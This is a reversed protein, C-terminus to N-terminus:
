AESEKKIQELMTLLEDVHEVKILTLGREANGVVMLSDGPVINLDERAKKPIVVQGREGVTTAKYVRLEHKKESM